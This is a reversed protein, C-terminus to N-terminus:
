AVEQGSYDNHDELVDEEHDEEGIGEDRGDGGRGQTDGDAAEADAANIAECEDIWESFIDIPETLFNISTQFKTDCIRCKITGISKHMNLVCEVCKAHNCFPCDFIKPVTARKKKIVKAKSKRRGM